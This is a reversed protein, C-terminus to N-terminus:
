ELGEALTTGDTQLQNDKLLYRTNRPKGGKRPTLFPIRNASENVWMMASQVGVNNTHM